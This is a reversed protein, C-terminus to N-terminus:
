DGQEQWSQWWPNCLARGAVGASSRRYLPAASCCRMRVPCQWYGPGEQKTQITCQLHKCLGQKSLRWVPYVTKNHGEIYEAM